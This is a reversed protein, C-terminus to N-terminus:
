RSIDFGSPLVLSDGININYLETEGANLELVFGSRVEPSYISPFTEPSIDREIHVVKLSQDLWLIDLSFLMDKMWIGHKQNDEFIFLANPDIPSPKIQNRM